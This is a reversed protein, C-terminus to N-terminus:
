KLPYKGYKRAEDVMVYINEVKVNAHLSNSSALMFGGDRGADDISKRVNKRVDEEGGYPLIYRCDVGGLLCIREGYKDKVEKLDMVGPEIPHLGDIGTNLIEDLIPYLNGDSHKLVPIGHKKGIDVIKKLNALEYEKFLKPSILPGHSDAYDDTVFLVDVGAEIFAKAFRQGADAVKDMVRKAFSPNRYFDIAMKDIGGRVQFALHWGSHCQGMIVVDEDRIPKLIKEMMEIIDPHFADPPEYSDLSEPTKVTGDMFYTTKGELSTQMIRGWQDVFKNGEIFEPKYNKTTLSYDSLAPVADFDLKKCAQIMALKYNISSEWTESGGALSLIDKGFKTLGFEMEKQLISEVIPPDLGLDTIPVFDPERLELATFFRERHNM